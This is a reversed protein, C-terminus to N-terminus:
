IFSFYKWIPGWAFCLVQSYASIHRFCISESLSFSALHSFSMYICLFTRLPTIQIVWVVALVGVWWFYLPYIYTVCIWVTSYSQTDTLVYSTSTCTIVCAFRMMMSVIACFLCLVLVYKIVENWFKTIKNINIEDKSLNLQCIPHNLYKFHVGHHNSIHICQSLNGRMYQVYWDGWINIKKQGTNPFSSFM